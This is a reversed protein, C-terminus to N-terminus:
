PYGEREKYTALRHIGYVYVPEVSIIFVVLSKHEGILNIMLQDLIVPRIVCNRGEFFSSFGGRRKM